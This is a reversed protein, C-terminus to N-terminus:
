GRIALGTFFTPHSARSDCGHTAEHRIAIEVYRSVFCAASSAIIVLRDFKLAILRDDDVDQQASLFNNNWWKDILNSTNPRSFRDITMELIQVITQALSERLLPYGYGDVKIPRTEWDFDLVISLLIM